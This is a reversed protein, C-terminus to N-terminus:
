FCPVFRYRSMAAKIIIFSPSVGGAFKYNFGATVTTLLLNDVSKLLPQPAGKTEKQIKRKWDDRRVMGKQM